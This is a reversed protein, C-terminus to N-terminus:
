QQTISWKQAAGCDHVDEYYTVIAHYSDLHNGCNIVSIFRKTHENELRGTDLYNWKQWAGDNCDHVYIYQGTNGKDGGEMCKSPYKKSRYRGRDDKEWLMSPDANNCDRLLVWDRNNGGSAHVRHSKLLM